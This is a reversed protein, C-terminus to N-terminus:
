SLFQIFFSGLSKISANTYMSLGGLFPECTISALEYKLSTLWCASDAGVGPLGSFMGPTAWQQVWWHLQMQRLGAWRRYILPLILLVRFNLPDEQNHIDKALFATRGHPPQSPWSGSEEIKNMVEALRQFAITSFGAFEEAQWGDRHGGATHPVKCCYEQLDTGTIPALEAPPARFLYKSYKSTFREILQEHRANPVNGEYIGAWAKRIILDVESPKTAYTGLLQGEPGQETRRAYVLPPAIPKRLRAYFRRLAGDPVRRDRKVHKEMKQADVMQARTRDIDM